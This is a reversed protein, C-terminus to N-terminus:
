ILESCLPVSGYGVVPLRASVILNCQLVADMSYGSLYMAGLKKDPERLSGRWEGQPAGSRKPLLKADVKVASINPSEPNCAPGKTRCSTGPFQFGTQRLVINVKFLTRANRDCFGAGCGASVHAPKGLQWM